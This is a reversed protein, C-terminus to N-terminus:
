AILSVAGGKHVVQMPQPDGDENSAPATGHGDWHRSGFYRSGGQGQDLLVDFSGLEVAHEQMLRRVADEQGAILDRIGSTQAVIEVSLTSNEETCLITLRGMTAPQVTIRMVKENRLVMSLLRQDFREALEELRVTKENVPSAQPVSTEVQVPPRPSEASHVTAKGDLVALPVAPEPEVAAEPLPRPASRQFAPHNAVPIFVDDFVDEADMPKDGALLADTDKAPKRPPAGDLCPSAEGADMQGGLLAMFEAVGESDAGDASKKQAKSAFNLTVEVDLMM